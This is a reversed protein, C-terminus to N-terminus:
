DDGGGGGDEGQDNNDEGQDDEDEQELKTLTFTTGSVSVTLEVQQNPQLAPLQFGAPITITVNAGHASVVLTGATTATPPTVSVVTGELEMEQVHGVDESQDEDLDGDNEIEVTEDVVDGAQENDDDFTSATRITRIAFVSHGASLVLRGGARRVVVGRVHARRARGRVALRTARYTGDRLLRGSVTVRAGVRIRMRITRYTRVAGTRSAVVLAHRGRQKAVVIGRFGAANSAAPYAVACVAFALLLAAKKM